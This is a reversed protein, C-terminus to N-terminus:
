RKRLEYGAKKLGALVDEAAYKSQDVSVTVVRLRIADAIIQKADSATVTAHEGPKVDQM